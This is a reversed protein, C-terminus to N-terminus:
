KPEIKHHFDCKPMKYMFLVTYTSFHRDLGVTYIHARACSVNRLFISPLEGLQSERKNVGIEVILSLLTPFLCRELIGRGLLWRRSAQRCTPATSLTHISRPTYDMDTEM